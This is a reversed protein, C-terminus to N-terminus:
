DNPDVDQEGLELMTLLHDWRTLAHDIAARIRDRM